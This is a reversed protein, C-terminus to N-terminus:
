HIVTNDCHCCWKHEMLISWQQERLIYEDYGFFVDFKTNILVGFHERCPNIHSLSETLIM